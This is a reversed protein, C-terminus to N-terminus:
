LRDQLQRATIVGDKITLRCIRATRRDGPLDDHIINRGHYVAYYQGKHRIVSHHGTGEEFGNAELVPAYTNEDPCKEFKIKTLDTEDTKARAYGVFYSPAEFCNGSYMVYHWQGERFYFPGEITHWHVGPTFRDKQFIEEDLSPLVVKQPKGEVQEPTLLRDVVIHTGPRAANHENTAYFIFLGSENKVVHSDISFASILLKTNEFPGLPSKSSSVHMTQLHGSQDAVGDYMEFSCYMYYTGNIEIVSPAWYSTYDKYSFVIGKAHWPGFLDEAEYAYVGKTGTTYIYFKGGAELIFPDAQGTYTEKNAELLQM